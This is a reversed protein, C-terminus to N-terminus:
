GSSDIARRTVGFHHLAGTGFISTPALREPLTFIPKGGFTRSLFRINPVGDTFWPNLCHVLACTGLHRPVKPGSLATTFKIDWSLVRM